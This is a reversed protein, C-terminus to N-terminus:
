KKLGNLLQLTHLSLGKLDDELRERDEECHPCAESDILKQAVVKALEEIKKEEEASHMRAM